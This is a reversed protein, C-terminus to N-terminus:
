FKLLITRLSGFTSNSSKLAICWPYFFKSKWLTQIPFGPNKVQKPWMSLWFGSSRSSRKKRRYRSKTVLRKHCKQPFKICLKPNEPRNSTLFGSKFGIKDSEGIVRFLLFYIHYRVWVPHYTLNSALVKLNTGNRRSGTQPFKEWAM